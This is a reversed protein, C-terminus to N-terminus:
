QRLVNAGASRLLSRNLKIEEESVDNLDDATKRQAMQQKLWQQHEKRKRMVAAAKEREASDEADSKRKWLEAQQLIHSFVYPDSRTAM